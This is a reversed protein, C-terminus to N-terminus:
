VHRMVDGHHANQYMAVIMEYHAAWQRIAFDCERENPMPGENLNPRRHRGREISPADDGALKSLVQLPRDDCRSVTLHRGCHRPQQLLQRRSSDGDVNQSMNTPAILVIRAVLRPTDTPASISTQSQPALPCPRSKPFCCISVTFIASPTKTSIPPGACPLMRTDAPLSPMKRTSVIYAGSCSLIM